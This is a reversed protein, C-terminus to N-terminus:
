FKYLNKAKKTTWYKEYRNRQAFLFVRNLENEYKEIAITPYVKILINMLESFDKIGLYLAYGSLITCSSNLGSGMGKLSIGNKEVFEKIKSEM